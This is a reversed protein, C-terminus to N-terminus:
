NTFRNSENNNDLLTQKKKLKQLKLRLKLRNKVDNPNSRVYINVTKPNLSAETLLSHESVDVCLENYFPHNCVQEM